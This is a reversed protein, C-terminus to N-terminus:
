DQGEANLFENEPKKKKQFLKEFDPKKKGYKKLAAFALQVLTIIGFLVVASVITKVALSVPRVIAKTIIAEDIVSVAIEGETNLYIKNMRLVTEMAEQSVIRAAEQNDAKVTLTVLGGKKGGEINVTKLLAEKEDQELAGVESEQLRTSGLTREQFVETDGFAALTKAINENQSPSSKVLLASKAQYGVHSNLWFLFSLALLGAFLAVNWFTLRKKPM